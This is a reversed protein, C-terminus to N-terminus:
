PLFVKSNENYGEDVGQKLVLLADNDFDLFFRIVDNRGFPTATIPLWYKVVGDLRIGREGMGLYVSNPLANASYSGIPGSRKPGIHISSAGVQSGVTVEFYVKGSTVVKDYYGQYLNPPAVFGDALHSVGVWLGSDYNYDYPRYGPPLPNLFPEQGFNFKFSGLTGSQNDGCGPVWITEKLGLGKYTYFDLFVNYPRSSKGGGQHASMLMREFM